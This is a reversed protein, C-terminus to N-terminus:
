AWCFADTAFFRVVTRRVTTRRGALRTTRRVTVWVCAWHGGATTVTVLWPEGMGRGGGRYPDLPSIGITDDLELPELLEDPTTPPELPPPKMPPKKAPPKKPLEPLPLPEEPLLPMLM